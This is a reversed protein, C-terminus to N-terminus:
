HTSEFVLAFSLEVLFALWLVIPHCMVCYLQALVLVSMTVLKSIAWCKPELELSLM